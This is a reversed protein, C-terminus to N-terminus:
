AKPYVQDDGDFPIWYGETPVMWLTGPIWTAWNGPLPASVWQYILGYKTDFIGFNFNWFYGGPVFTNDWENMPFDPFGDITVDWEPKFGVMNWGECVNFYGPDIGPPEPMISHTGFVWLNLPFATVDYGTEGAHLTRVWYAKGAQIAMTGPVFATGDFAESHWVGVNPAPDECQGFYWVSKLQDPRDIPAFISNINTDFPYLPLSILNWKEELEIKWSDKYQYATCPLPEEAIIGPATGCTPAPCYLYFTIEYDGPSSFHIYM